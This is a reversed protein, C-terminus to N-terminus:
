GHGAELANRVVERIEGIKIPKDLCCYVDLREGDDCFRHCGFGTMWVVATETDLVRAAETLEVGSMDPMRIDTILLDLDGDELTALAERATQATEVTFDENMAQLARSLIFRVRVEDDVILIRKV